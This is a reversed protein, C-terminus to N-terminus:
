QTPCIFGSFGVHLVASNQTKHLTNRHRPPAPEGMSPFCFANTGGGAPRAPRTGRSLKRPFLQKGRAPEAGRPRIMGGRRPVRRGGKPAEPARGGRKARCAPPPKGPRASEVVHSRGAGAGPVTRLGIRAPAIRQTVEICGDRAVGASVKAKRGARTGRLRKGRYLGRANSSIFFM